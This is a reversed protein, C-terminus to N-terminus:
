VLEEVPRRRELSAPIPVSPDLGYVVVVLGRALVEKALRYAM